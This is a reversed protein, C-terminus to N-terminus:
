SDFRQLIQHGTIYLLGLPTTDTSTHLLQKIECSRQQNYCIDM